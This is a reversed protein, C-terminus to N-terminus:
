PTYKWEMDKVKLRTKWVEAPRDIIETVNPDAGVELKRIIGKEAPDYTAMLFEDKRLNSVYDTELYTIEAGFDRVTIQQRSYDYM